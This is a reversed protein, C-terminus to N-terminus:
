YGTNAFLDELADETLTRDWTWHSALTRAICPTYQYSKVYTASVTLEGRDDFSWSM